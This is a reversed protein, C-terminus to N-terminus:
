RPSAARPLPVKWRISTAVAVATWASVDCPPPPNSAERKGADVFSRVKRGRVIADRNETRVRSPGTSGSGRTPGAFGSVTQRALPRICDTGVCANSSHTPIFLNWSTSHGTDSCVGRSRARASVHRMEQEHVKAKHQSPSGLFICFSHKAFLSMNEM